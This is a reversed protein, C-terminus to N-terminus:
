YAFVFAFEFVSYFTFMSTKPRDGRFFQNACIFLANLMVYQPTDPEFVFVIIFAYELHIFFTLFIASQYFLLKTLQKIM